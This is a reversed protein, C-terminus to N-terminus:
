KIIVGCGTGFLRQIPQGCVECVTKKEASMSEFVEFKAPLTCTTPLPELHQYDFTPM